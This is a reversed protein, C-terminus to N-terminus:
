SLCSSPRIHTVLRYGQSTEDSQGSCEISVVITRLYGKPIKKGSQREPRPRQNQDPEHEIGETTNAIVILATVLPDCWGATWIGNAAQHKSHRHALTSDAFQPIIDHKRVSTRLQDKLFSDESLLGKCIKLESHAVVRKQLHRSLERIRALAPGQLEKGQVDTSRNKKQIWGVHQQPKSFCHKVIATPRGAMFSVPKRLGRNLRGQLYCHTDSYSTRPKQWSTTWKQVTRHQKM